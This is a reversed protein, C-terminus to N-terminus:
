RSAQRQNSTVVTGLSGDRDSRGAGPGALPDLPYAAVPEAIGKLTHVEPDSYDFQGRTLAYVPFSVLVRGPTCVGELRSALNVGQGIATYELLDESGFNGVTVDDQNIGVRMELRHTIGEAAWKVRLDALAQQMALAMMTAQVAQEAPQTDDAAGFHVMLGDGMFKDLTGGHTEILEVMETLYENLLRTVVDPPTTDSLETFGTLDSFVVTVRRREASVTADSDRELIQQVVKSPFYKQLRSKRVLDALQERVRAELDANLSALESAQEEIVDKQEQVEDLAERLEHTREEVVGELHAARARLQRTRAASAAVGVGAVALVCLVAFWGTQWFHPQLTFPISAGVTNWVGDENAAQVRFVYNGPALDTYFAERRAGAETWHDDRGELMYRHSVREPASMALGAYEFKLERSGARLVASGGALNVSRDNALLRQIAVPPPLPNTRIAAPDITAVGATTPFWLSGDSAVAGAPQGGGNAEASRLGDARGYVTTRATSSSGTAVRELESFAVRAIGRNSTLWLHGQGDELV